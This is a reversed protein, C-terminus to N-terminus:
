TQIAGLSIEEPVGDKLVGSKVVEWCSQVFGPPISGPRSKNEPYGKGSMDKRKKGQSYLYGNTLRDGMRGEFTQQSIGGEYAYATLHGLFHRMGSTRNGSEELRPLTGVDQEYTNAWRTTYRNFHDMYEKGWVANM